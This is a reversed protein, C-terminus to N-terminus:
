KIRGESMAALLDNWMAMSTESDYKGRRDNVKFEEIMSSTWIKKDDITPSTHTNNRSPAVMAEKSPNTTKPAVPASSELYTNFVTSLKDADWNDNYAKVLDGYTYLGSPDPQSLFEMFKPDQGNWLANWDGKVKTNLYSKFNEQAAKIQTEEVSAIQQEVPAVKESFLKEAEQRQLERLTEIFDDGYEERFKAIRDSDKPPEPAPEQPRQELKDIIMQKLNRIDDQSSNYMGQLSKWKQEYERAQAAYDVEPEVPVEPEAEPPVVENSDPAEEFMQGHLQEALDAAETVQKPLEM